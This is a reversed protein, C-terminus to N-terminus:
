VCLVCCILLRALASLSAAATSVLVAPRGVPLALAPPYAGSDARGPAPRPLVVDAEAAAGGARASGPVQGSLALATLACFFFHAGHSEFASSPLESINVQIFERKPDPQVTEINLEDSLLCRCALGAYARWVRADFSSGSLFQQM